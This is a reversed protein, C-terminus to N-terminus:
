YNFKPKFKRKEKSTIRRKLLFYIITGIIPFLIIILLWLTNGYPMIFKSKTIDILAWFWLILSLITFVAILVLNDM